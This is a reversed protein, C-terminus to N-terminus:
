GSLVILVRVTPINCALSYYSKGWLLLVKRDLIMMNLVVCTEDVLM